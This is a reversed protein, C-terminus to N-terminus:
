MFPNHQTNEKLTTFTYDCSRLYKKVVGWFFEIFEARLSIEAFFICLYEA